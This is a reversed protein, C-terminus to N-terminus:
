RLLTEAARPLVVARAVRHKSTAHSIASDVDAFPWLGMPRLLDPSLDSVVHVPHEAAKRRLAYATLGYPHFTRRLAALHRELRGTEFWPLMAPDGVGRDARALWVIPAGPAAVRAAVVLAKHAQVLDRDRPAGGGAVVLDAPAPAPVAFADVFRAAAAAQSAGVEGGEAFAVRGAGDLVLNLSWCSPLRRAVRLLAAHFRNGDTRGLWDIVRGDPAVTADLTLRHAAAVTERDALGPVLTKPGGSWGALYHPAVTGVLVLLDAEVAARHVRLPKVAEDPPLDANAAPDDPESAEITVRPPLRERLPQAVDDAAARAHIGRAVLVRVTAHPAKAAIRKLIEPLVVDAPFPRTADPVAVVVHRVGVLAEALPPAGVPHDLAHGVVAGPDAAAAGARPEVVEVAVDDGFRVDVTRDGYPVAVVRSV